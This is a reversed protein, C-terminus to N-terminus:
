TTRADLERLKERLWADARRGAWMTKGLLYMNAFNWGMAISVLMGTLNNNAGLVPVITAINAIIIPPWWTVTKRSIQFSADKKAHWEALVEKVELECDLRELLQKITPDRAM